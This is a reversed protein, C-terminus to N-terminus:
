REVPRFAVLDVEVRARHALATVGICTRAPLRDALFYSSYIENFRSYDEEFNTLYAGARVVNPWDLGLGRLVIHLNA